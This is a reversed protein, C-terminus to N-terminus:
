KTIKIGGLRSEDYTAKGLSDNSGVYMGVLFAIAAALLSGLVNLALQETLRRRFPQVRMVVIELRDVEPFDGGLVQQLTEKNLKFSQKPQSNGGGPPSQIAAM